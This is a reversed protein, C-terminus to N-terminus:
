SVMGLAAPGVGSPRYWGLVGRAPSWARRGPGSVGHTCPSNQCEGALRNLACVRSRVAPIEVWGRPMYEPTPDM